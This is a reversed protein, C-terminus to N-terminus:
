SPGGGMLFGIVLLLEFLIPLSLLVLGVVLSTKWPLKRLHHHISIVILCVGALFGFLPLFIGVFGLAGLNDFLLILAILAACAGVAIYVRRREIRKKEVESLVDKIVEATEQKSLTDEIIEAKMVEALSVKLADALPEITNIDPLGIGREWRSIAKDTVHLQEALDAQTMSLDKRRQAIFAGLKKADM